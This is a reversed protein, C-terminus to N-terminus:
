LGRTEEGQQDEEGGGVNNEAMEPMQQWDTDYDAEFLRAM